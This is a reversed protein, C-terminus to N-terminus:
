NQQALRGANDPAVAAAGPRSARQCGGPAPQYASRQAALMGYAAALTLVLTRGQRRLSLPRDRHSPSLGAGSAGDSGTVRTKIAAREPRCAVVLPRRM